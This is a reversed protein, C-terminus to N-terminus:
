EEKAEPLDLACCQDCGELSLHPRAPWIVYNYLREADLFLTEWWGVREKKQVSM